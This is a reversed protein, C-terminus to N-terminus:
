HCQSEANEILRRDRLTEGRAICQTVGDIQRAKGFDLSGARTEGLGKILWAAEADDSFDLASGGGGPFDFGPSVGDFLGAAIGIGAGVADGDEGIFFIKTAGQAVQPVDDLELDGSTAMHGAQALVEHHVWQLDDFGGLGTRPCNKNYDTCQFVLVDLQKVFRRLEGSQIRKKFDVFLAFEFAGQAM